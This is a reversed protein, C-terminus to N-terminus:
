VLWLDSVLEDILSTVIDLEIELGSEFAEIDFDLWRDLPTCMDKRIIEDVVVEEAMSRYELIEKYVEETLWRKRMFTVWRPWTKCKAVFVQRCKSGLCESVCDFIARRQIKSYEEYREVETRQNELTDFLSPMITNETEDVALEEAMLEANSLIDKVYELEMMRESRTSSKEPWNMKHEPTISEDIQSSSVEEDQMSSYVTRDEIPESIMSNFRDESISEFGVSCDEVELTCQPPNIHSLMVSLADVDILHFRTPSLSLKEPYIEDSHDFSNVDIGTRTEMAQETTTRSEPKNRRLPSTFTFSIVDRSEKMSFSDNYISEDTTVNTVNCQISKSEYTNVANDYGRAGNQDCRKKQSSSNKRKSLSFEKQKDAVRTSLRKSEISSNVICKNTTRRAGTLNESSRTRTPKSNLVKSTSEGKSTLGNKRLVNSNRGICNKQNSKMEKQKMCRRNGNLNLTDRSRVDTKSPTVLSVSKGKGHLSSSNGSDRSDKFTPATKCLNRRRETAKGNVNFRSEHWEAESKEQLELTRLSSMRNRMYPQPSEECVISAANKPKMYGHSKIPSLLNNNSELPMNIFDVHSFASVPPLSNLGMLKAVLGPSNNSTECEESDDSSTISLSFSFDSCAISSPSEVNEDMKIQSIPMSEINEKAQNAVDVFLKKQSKGNWGFFSLLSRKSRKKEMIM